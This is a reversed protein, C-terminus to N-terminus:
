PKRRIRTRGPEIITLAGAFETEEISALAQAVADVVFRSRTESPFRVVVVGCHSGLPFQLVNCFDTDRSVLVAKREQALAFVHADAAGRQGMEIIHQCEHGQQLLVSSLTLPLDEDILFRVM